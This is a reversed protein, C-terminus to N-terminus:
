PPLRRFHTRVTLYTGLWLASWVLGPVLSLASHLPSHDRWYSWPTAAVSALWTVGAYIAIGFLLHESWRRRTLLSLAAVACIM